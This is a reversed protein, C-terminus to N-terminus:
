AGVPRVVTRIITRAVSRATKINLDPNAGLSSGRRSDHLECKLQNQAEKLNCHVLDTMMEFKERLQLVHLVVNSDSKSSPERQEQLIDQPHGQPTHSHSYTGLLQPEKIQPHASCM